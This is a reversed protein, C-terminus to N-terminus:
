AVLRRRFYFRFCLPYPPRVCPPVTVVTAGREPQLQRKTLFFMARGFDAAAFDWQPGTVSWGLAARTLM